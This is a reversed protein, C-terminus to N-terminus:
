SREAVEIAEPLTFAGEYLAKGVVVGEVGRDVLGRLDAIDELRAVGGSAIIPVDTLSSVRELLDLNPGTLTGDKSVDTVIYCHCGASDFNSIVEEMTGATETWGRLAVQGEKVDLSIAVRSGFRSIMERTWDPNEVAATGLSIRHAGTAIAREVSESDRLGGSVEVAIDVNKVIAEVIERNNGTGFAADLDVVHLWKAGTREFDYAQEVPDGYNTSEEARGQVLRVAKGRQIDIAPIVLLPPQGKVFPEV